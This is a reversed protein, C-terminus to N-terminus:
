RVLIDPRGSPHMPWDPDPTVIEVGDDQTLITDESKTGTISPNWGVLQCEQVLRQEAPTAIFDRAEYGMPGGQHHLQWEDAFGHARYAEIGAALVDSWRTGPRTADHLALDVACVADHRQKLGADIPGFHVLRTVSVTLGHRQACVAVMAVREIANATPTPHRYRRIREDAAILVVNARIGADRLWGSVAGGLHWETMGPKCDERLLRGVVRATDAGLKRARDAEVPTLSARLPALMDEPFDTAYDGSDLLAALEQNPEHWPGTIIEWGDLPEEDRLRDAEIINTFCRRAEPEWVLTAVGLDSGADVHVDAGGAMWAINSRRRAIVGRLGRKQCFRGLRENIEPM